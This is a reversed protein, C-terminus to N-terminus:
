ARKPRRPVSPNGFTRRVWAASWAFLIFLTGILGAALALILQPQSREYPLDPAALTQVLPYSSYLDSRNIDLRAAASTFVAEAVLHDKKLYELRAADQSMRAVDKELRIMETELSAIERRRGELTSENSVIAHLLDAQHSSNMFLVLRKLDISADVGAQQALQRIEALAGDLKLQTSKLSPHNPGFIRSQEHSQSNAEAFSSALKAFSPDSALKIGAAAEIPAIGVRDILMAQQTAQRQLDSRGDSLKRRMLEASTVAENFQNLSLMGTARQFELIRERATDLSAQYVKLSERVTQGRREVEDRRLTDLQQEFAAHLAQAKRQAEEPSRGQIQFMMLATEDILKVRARGFAAADVGVAEAAARRVQDSDAIERYIVKPSLTVSGFTQSQVTSTQGITDLSVSSGGNSVPLILTWKSVYTAPTLLYYAAALLWVPLLSLILWRSRGRKGFAAQLQVQAERPSLGALPIDRARGAKRLKRRVIM